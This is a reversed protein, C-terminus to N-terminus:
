SQSSRAKARLHVVKFEIEDLLSEMKRYEKYINSKCFRIWDDRGSASVQIIVSQNEINYALDLKNRLHEPPRIRAIYNEMVEIIDVINPLDLSM